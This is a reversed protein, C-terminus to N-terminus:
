FTLLISKHMADVGLEDWVTETVECGSLLGCLM